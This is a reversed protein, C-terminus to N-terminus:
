GLQCKVTASFSRAPSGRFTVVTERGKAEVTVQIESPNVNTTVTCRARRKCGNEIHVLHDYGAGSFRAQTSYSVCESAEERELKEAPAEAPVTAARAPTTPSESSGIPLVAVGLSGITLALFAPLATM